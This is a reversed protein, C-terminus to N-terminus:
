GKPKTASLRQWVVELLPKLGAGTAASVAHLEVGRKQFADKLRDYADRTETVDIKALAVIQPREALEPDYKALERNIVDFDHLPDREEEETLEVLHVLVRCREVHRLFRHGLG